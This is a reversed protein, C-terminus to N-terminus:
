TAGALEESSPLLATLQRFVITPTTPWLEVTPGDPVVLWLGANTDIAEVVRVGPSQPSPTWRVEVRWHECLEQLLTRLAAAEAGPPVAAPDREALLRALEDATFSLRIAPELRPRPGLDNARALAVPLFPTPVTALRLRGDPEPMLLVAVRADVWLRARRSGRELTGECVPAAMAALTPVLERHPAGCRLAGARELEERGAPGAPGDGPGEGQAVRRLADLGAPSAVLGGTTPDFSAESM